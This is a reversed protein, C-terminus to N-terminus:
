FIDFFGICLEPHFTSSSASLLESSLSSINNNNDPHSDIINKEHSDDIFNDKDKDNDVHNNINKKNSNGFTNNKKLKKINKLQSDSLVFTINNYVNNL